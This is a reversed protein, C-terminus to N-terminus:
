RPQPGNPNTYPRTPEQGAPVVEPPRGPAPTEQSPLVPLSEKAPAPGVPTVPPPVQVSDRPHREYPETGTRTPRRWRLEAVARPIFLIVDSAAAFPAVVAERVQAENQRTTSTFLATREDPYRGRARESASTDLWNRTFRPQHAPADSPITYRVGDWNSRDLSTTSPQADAAAQPGSAGYVPAAQQQITPEFGEPPTRLASQAFTEPKWVGRDFPRGVNGVSTEQNLPGACGASLALLAALPAAPRRLTM